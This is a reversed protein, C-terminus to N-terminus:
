DSGSLKVRFIVGLVIIATLGYSLTVIGWGLLIHRQTSARRVLKLLYAVGFVATLFPLSQMWVVFPIFGWGFHAANRYFIFGCPLWAFGLAMAALGFRGGSSVGAIALAIVSALSIAVTSEPNEFM